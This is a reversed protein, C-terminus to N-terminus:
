KKKSDGEQVYAIKKEGYSTSSKELCRYAPHGLKGCQYGKM